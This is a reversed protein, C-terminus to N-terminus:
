IMWRRADHVRSDVGYRMALLDLVVLFVVLAVLAVLGIMTGTRPVPGRPPRM